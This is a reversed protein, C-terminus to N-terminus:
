CCGKKKEPEESKKSMEHLRILSQDVRQGELTYIVSKSKKHRVSEASRSKEEKWERIRQKRKEEKQKYKDNQKKLEEKEKKVEDLKAQLEQEKAIKKQKEEEGSKRARRVLEAATIFVGNINHGTKSSCECQMPQFKQWEKQEIISTALARNTQLLEQNENKDNKCGVMIVVVDDSGHEEIQERWYKFNKFPNEISIDYCVVM